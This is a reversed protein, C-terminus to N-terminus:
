VIHKQIERHTTTCCTDSLECGYLLASTHGILVLEILTSMFEKKCRQCVIRFSHLDQLMITFM